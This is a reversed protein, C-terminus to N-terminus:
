YNRLGVPLYIRFVIPTGAWFGGTLVYQGGMQVAADPQGITGGLTYVGGTSFTYGGGDVTWRSVDYVGGSQALAVSALLFFAVLAFFTKDANHIHLSNAKVLSVSRLAGLVVQKTRMKSSRM